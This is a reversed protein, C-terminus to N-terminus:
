APRSIIQPGFGTPPQAPKPRPSASFNVSIVVGGGSLVRKVAEEPTDAELGIQKNQNVIFDM